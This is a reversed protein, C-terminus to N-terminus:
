RFGNQIALDQKKRYKKVAAASCMEVLTPCRYQNVVAEVNLQEVIDV